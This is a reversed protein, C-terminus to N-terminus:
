RRFLLLRGGGGIREIEVSSWGADTYREMVADVVQAGFASPLPVRYQPAEHQSQALIGDIWEELDKAQREFQEPSPGEGIETPKKVM